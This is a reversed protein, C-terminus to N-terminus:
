VTQYQLGLTMATLVHSASTTRAYKGMPVHVSLANKRRNKNDANGSSYRVAPSLFGHYKRNDAVHKLWEAITVQLRVPIACLLVLVEYYLGFLSSFIAAILTANALQLM